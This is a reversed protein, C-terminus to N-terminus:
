KKLGREILARVAESRSASKARAWRDIRELLEGPLRLGVFKDADIETPRGRAKRKVINASKSM